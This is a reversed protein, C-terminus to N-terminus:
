ETKEAKYGWAKICVQGCVPCDYAYVKVHEVESGCLPCCEIDKNIEVTM